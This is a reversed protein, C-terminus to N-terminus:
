VAGGERLILVDWHPGPAAQRGEAREHCLCRLVKCRQVAEGGAEGDDDVSVNEVDCGAVGAFSGAAVRQDLETTSQVFSGHGRVLIEVDVGEHSSEGFSPGASTLSDDSLEAALRSLQQLAASIPQRQSDLGISQLSASRPQSHELLPQSLFPHLIIEFENSSALSHTLSSQFTGRNGKAGKGGIGKNRRGFAVSRPDKV